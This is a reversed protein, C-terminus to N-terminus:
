KRVLVRREPPSAQSWWRTWGPTTQNLSVQYNGDPNTAAGLGTNALQVNAGPLPDGTEADTVTGEVTGTQAFALSPVILLLLLGSLLNKLLREM